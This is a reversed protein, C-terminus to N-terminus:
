SSCVHFPSRTGVGPTTTGLHKYPRTDSAFQTDISPYLYTQFSMQQMSSLTLESRVSAILEVYM